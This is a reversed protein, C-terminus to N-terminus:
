EDTQLAVARDLPHDLVRERLLEQVLLVARALRDQDVRDVALDHETGRKPEDRRVRWGNLECAFGALSFRSGAGEPADLGFGPGALPGPKEADRPRDPHCIEPRYGCSWCTITTSGSRHTATRRWASTRSGRSGAPEHTWWRSSVSRGIASSAVSSPQRATGVSTTLSRSRRATPRSAPHSRRRRPCVSRGTSPAM